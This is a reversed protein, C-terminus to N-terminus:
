PSGLARWSEGLRRIHLLPFEREGGSLLSDVCHRQAPLPCPMWRPSCGPTRRPDPRPGLSLPQPTPHLCGGSESHGRGRLGPRPHKQRVAGAWRGPRDTRPHPCPSTSHGIALLTKLLARHGKWARQKKAGLGRGPKRGKGHVRVSLYGARLMERPHTAALLLLLHKHPSSIGEAGLGWSAAGVMGPPELGSCSTKFPVEQTTLAGQPSLWLTM